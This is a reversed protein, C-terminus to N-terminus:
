KPTGKVLQPIGSLEKVAGGKAVVRAFQIPQFDVSVPTM